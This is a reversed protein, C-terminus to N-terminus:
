SAQYGHVGISDEVERMLRFVGRMTAACETSLQALQDHLAVRTVFMSRLLYPTQEILESQVMMAPNLDQYFRNVKLLEDVCNSNNLELNQIQTNRAFVQVSSQAYGDASIFSLAFVLLLSAKMSGGNSRAIGGISGSNFEM